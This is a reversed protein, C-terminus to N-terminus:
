EEVFHLALDVASVMTRLEGIISNWSFHQFNAAPRGNPTSANRIAESGPPPRLHLEVAQVYAGHVRVHMAHVESKDLVIEM